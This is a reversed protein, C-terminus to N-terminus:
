PLLTAKGSAVHTATSVPGATTLRLAAREDSAPLRRPEEVIVGRLRVPQPTRDALQAIEDEGHLDCLCQHGAAGVAVLALDRDGKMGGADFRQGVFQGLLM